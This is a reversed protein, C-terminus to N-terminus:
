FKFILDVQFRNNSEDDTGDESKTHFWTVAAQVNSYLQYKGQLVTGKINTGGSFTNAAAVGVAGFDSDSMEDWTADKEINRYELKAEWSGAAKAKGYKIGGIYGTDKTTAVQNNVWTGYFKLPQSMGSYNIAADAFVPTMGQGATNGNGETTRTLGDSEVSYVGLGLDLDTKDSLSFGYTVQAMILNEMSEGDRREGNLFYVGGHIGLGGTSYHAEFGEPTIDGDFLAKSVMWGTKEFNPVKGGYFWLGSDNDWDQDQKWGVYAQDLFLSDRGHGGDFTQNTSGANSNSGTSIRFGAKFGNQMNAAAGYRFRYRWRDRAGTGDSLSNHVHDFRLRLDGKLSLTEVWSPVANAAAANDQRVADAEAETILGKEVLKRLLSENSQAEATGAVTLGALACLTTLKTTNM